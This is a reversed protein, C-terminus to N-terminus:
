REPRQDLFGLDMGFREQLLRIAEEQQRALQRVPDAAWKAELEALWYRFPDGNQGLGDRLLLGRGVAQGLWRRLTTTPPTAEDEPWARLIEPRTLKDPARELVRRLAAWAPAFEDQAFDGHALYDTGEANLEIVRQRPTAELRSWALLRRRRDDDVARTYWHMEVLIDAFAPLAGSGRAAQGDAAAGKRPHHLLLVAVGAATLRRLPLLAEMMASAGREAGAPLFEGVTDIVALALGHERHLEGLFDVLDVWQGPTPKNTFPRAILCVQPGLGLRQTRPEWLFSAEESVVVARGAAVGLGALTGGTAMRSLLVSLLTTKGVKWQSTLLTVHSRALYGQWLWM